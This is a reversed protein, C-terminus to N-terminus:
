DSWAYDLQYKDIIFMSLDNDKLKIARLLEDHPKDTKLNLHESVIYVVREDGSDLL